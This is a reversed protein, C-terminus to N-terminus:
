TLRKQFGPFLMFCGTCLHNSFLVLWLTVAQTKGHRVMEREAPRPHDHHRTFVLSVHDTWLEVLCQPMWMDLSVYLFLCLFDFNVLKIQMCTDKAPPYRFYMKRCTGKQIPCTHLQSVILTSQMCSLVLLSICIDRESVATNCICIVCDAQLFRIDAESNWTTGSCGHRLRRYPVAFAFPTVDVFKALTPLTPLTPIELFDDGVQLDCVRHSM